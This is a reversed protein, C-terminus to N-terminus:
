PIRLADGLAQAATENLRLSTRRGAPIADKGGFRVEGGRQVYLRDGALRDTVDAPLAAFRLVRADGAAEITYTTDLLKVYNTSNNNTALRNHVYFRAKQGAPDFAVRVAVEKTFGAPAVALFWNNVFQTVNGSLGAGFYDGPNAAIVQELTTAFPWQDFPLTSTASPATRLKNNATTFLMFPTAARQSSRYFMTSGAPFFANAVAPLSPDPGFGAYDYGGDDTSHWRIENMVDSMRRGDLTVVTISRATDHYSKCYDSTRTTDNYTGVLVDDGTANDPCAYWETGTWFLTNRLWPQRVGGTFIERQEFLDRTGDAAITAGGGFVRYSYNGLDTFALQVLSRGSDPVPASPAAPAAIGLASRMAEWAITNPRQQFVTRELDRNGGFVAGDRQVFLRQRKHATLLVAPYGSTFRLVRSDAQTSLASSGDGLAACNQSANTATVVDCVYYRVADNAPNFAARYRKVDTLVPDTQDFPLEDLFISNSGTVVAATNVLNGSMRKFDTFDAASRFTGSGSAPVVRPKDTLGYRETAGVESAQERYSFRAGAPFVADGLLSPTPGWKVPLGSDDTDFGPADRLSSARIAAVVDAMKKGAVDYEAIKTLSRSAGCFLSDQPVAAATATAPSGPKNDTVQWAVPCVAWAGAKADWYSTNRNFPQAAGAVVNARVESAKFRGDTLLTSDGVFAQLQYNNADTYTFRRVSVFPGPASPALPSAITAAVAAQEVVTAPALNREALVTGAVQVAVAAPTTAPSSKVLEALTSLDGTTVSAILAKTAAADINAAAALKTVEVIVTNVTRAYTAAQADAGAVYDALPSAALGLQSKVSAVATATPVGQSQATDVVLTTLPSVFVSQAGPTGTAPSKLVFATGVAAGTAKDVASAPVNAIVAHTGAQAADVLFSYKGDVDSTGSPEAPLDCVGNDNQDYCAIADRLPGDAVVGSVTVQQPVPAPAPAPPSSSDSGGGCASLAALATAAWLRALPLGGTGPRTVREFPATTRNSTM